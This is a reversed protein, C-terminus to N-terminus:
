DSWSDSAGGGSFDGGGGSWKSTDMDSLIDICTEIVSSGGSYDAPPSDYTKYKKVEVPHINEIPIKHKTIRALLKGSFCGYCDVYEIKEKRWFRAWFSAKKHVKNCTKCISTLVRM